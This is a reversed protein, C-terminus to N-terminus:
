DKVMALASDIERKVDSDQDVQKAEHLARKAQEGGLKGLAWAAHARVLPEEENQLVGVLVPVAEDRQGSNGLAVAANRLMGRRKPRKAPNRRFRENFADRDMRILELLNVPDLGARAHFAPERTSASRRNWPCVDQCIDCGLLWDGMGHRLDEPISGKLEITLYSICRRADLVYPEPFAETPCADLCRTCSGCHDTAPADIELAATTILEALLFYSGGRRHILVTNKGWWGLGARAALERELVPATDVYYRGSIDHDAEALLSEWLGALRSKILDHYDDGRAYRAMRGALGADGDAGEAAGPPDYYMGLCIVSRAGPVLQRPDARKELNRELWGMQGAYGQAVWRANFEAAELPDASTIGVLDFGLRTAESRVFRTLDHDAQSGPAPM